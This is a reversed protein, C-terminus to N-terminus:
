GEFCTGVQLRGLLSCGAGLPWTQACFPIVDSSYRLASCSEDMRNTGGGHRPRSSASVHLCPRLSEWWLELDAPFGNLRYRLHEFYSVQSLMGSQLATAGCIYVDDEADLRVDNAPLEELLANQLKVLELDVEPPVEVRSGTSSAKAAMTRICDAQVIDIPSVFIGETNLLRSLSVARLSDLGFSILSATPTIIGQEVGIFKSVLGLLAIELAANYYEEAASEASERLPTASTKLDEHHKPKLLSSLQGSSIALAHINSELDELLLQVTRLDLEPESFAARLEVIDSGPDAFLEVALVFQSALLSLSDQSCNSCRLM